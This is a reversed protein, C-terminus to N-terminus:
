LNADRSRGDCSWPRTIWGLLSVARLWNTMLTRGYDGYSIQCAMLGSIALGPDRSAYVINSGGREMLSDYSLVMTEM